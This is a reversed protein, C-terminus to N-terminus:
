RKKRGGATTRRERGATGSTGAPESAGVDAEVEMNKLAKEYAERVHNAQKGCMQNM